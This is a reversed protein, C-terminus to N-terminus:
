DMNFEINLQKYLLKIEQYVNDSIEIIGKNNEKLKFSKEGPYFVNDGTKKISKIFNIVNDNYENEEQFFFPDIVMIFHGNKSKEGDTNLNRVMGGFSSGTMLGAFFDVVLSLGSGKHKGIPILSGALALNPDDTPNGESDLAWGFPIKESNKAALRIKGRSVVSTAMDLIIPPINSPTPFCFGLPNTGFLAKNGGWPAIAPASNTMIIGIKNDNVIQNLFYSITGFNNSNRIGVVGIGYSDSKEIAKNVGFNALVQGFGHKGDYVSIVPTEKITQIEKLPNLSGNKIKKIYIPLRTIGHTDRGISHSYIITDTILDIDSSPVQMQLLARKIVKTISNIAIKPM